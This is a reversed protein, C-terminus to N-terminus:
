FYLTRFDLKSQMKFEQLDIRRIIKWKWGFPWQHLNSQLPQWFQNKKWINFTALMRHKMSIATSIKWLVMRLYGLVFSIRRQKMRKCGTFCEINVWVVQCHVATHIILFYVLNHRRTSFHLLDIYCRKQIKVCLKSFGGKQTTKARADLLANL